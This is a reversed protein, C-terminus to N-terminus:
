YYYKWRQWWCWRNGGFNNKFSAGSSGGIRYGWSAWTTRNCDPFFQYYGSGGVCGDGWSETKEIKEHSGSGSLNTWGGSIGQCGTKPAKWCGFQPNGGTFGGVEMKVLVAVLVQEVVSWNRAAPYGAGGSDCPNYFEPGFNYGAAGGIAIVKTDKITVIGCDEGNKGDNNLVMNPFPNELTGKGTGETMQLLGSVVMEVMEVLAQEQVM